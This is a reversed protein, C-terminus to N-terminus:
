FSVLKNFRIIALARLSKAFSCWTASSAFKMANIAPKFNLVVWFILVTSLGRGLKMWLEQCALRHM